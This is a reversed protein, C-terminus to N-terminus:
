RDEILEVFTDTNLNEPIEWEVFERAILRQNVESFFLDVLKQFDDPLIGNFNRQLGRLLAMPNPLFEDEDTFWMKRLYRLLYVFDRLHFFNHLTHVAFQNCQMYSDCLGDVLQEGLENM